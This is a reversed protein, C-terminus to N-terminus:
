ARSLHSSARLQRVWRQRLRQHRNFPKRRAPPLPRTTQRHVPVARCQAHPNGGPTSANNNSGDWSGLNAYPDFQPIYGPNNQLQQQAPNYSNPNQAQQQQGTLYSYSSGSITASSALQQGFSSSPQFGSGGPSPYSQTPSAIYGGGGGPTGYGMPQQPQGYGTQGYQLQQQPYGQQLPQQQQQYVGQQQLYGGGGTLSSDGWSAYQPQGSNIPPTSLDPFRSSAPGGNPIFPNNTLPPSSYGGYM